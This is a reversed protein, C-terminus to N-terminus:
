TEHHKVTHRDGRQPYGGLLRNRYYRLAMKGDWRDNRCYRGAPFGIEDKFRVANFYDAVAEGNLSEKLIQLGERIIPTAEDEKLWDDYAKANEPVIYGAIPRAPAGGFKLFRNLLKHKLRKSTHANHGVHDRCASLADEEWTPEATDICDNPVIVRTGHDVAVGLLRVADAGRVLRGLDEMVLVDLERKRLEAEILELVPRDLREGKGKTAIVRFEVPGDYMETVVQRGHDEQDQLSLETQSACGSIRAMLGAAVTHGNRPVLAHESRRNMFTVGQGSGHRDPFLDSSRRTPFLTSRPPRRLMLIFFYYLDHACTTLDRRPQRNGARRLGRVRM